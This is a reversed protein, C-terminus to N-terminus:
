EIVCPSGPDRYERRRERNIADLEQSVKARRSDLYRARFSEILWQNICRPGCADIFGNSSTSVNRSSSTAPTNNTIVM